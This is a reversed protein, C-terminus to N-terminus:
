LMMSGNVVLIEFEISCSTFRMWCLRLKIAFGSTFEWNLRLGGSWGLQWDRSM